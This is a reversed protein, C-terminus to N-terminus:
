LHIRYRIENAFAGNIDYGTDECLIKEDKLLQIDQDSFGRRILLSKDVHHLTSFEMKFNHIIYQKSKKFAARDQCIAGCKICGYGDQSGLDYLARIEHPFCEDFTFEPVIKEFEDRQM